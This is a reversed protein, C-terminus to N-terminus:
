HYEAPIAARPNENGDSVEKTESAGDVPGRPLGETVLEPQVGAPVEAHLEWRVRVERGRVKRLGAHEPEPVQGPGLSRADAHELVRLGTIWQIKADHFAPSDM